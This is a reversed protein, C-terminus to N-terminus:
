LRGRRSLNLWVRTIQLQGIKRRSDIINFYKFIRHWREVLEAYAVNFRKGHNDFPPHLHAMEHLLTGVSLFRKDFFYIRPQGYILDVHSVVSRGLEMEIMAQPMRNITFERKLTETVCDVECFEPNEILKLYVPIVWGVYDCITDALLQLKALSAPIYPEPFKQQNMAFIKDVTEKYNM